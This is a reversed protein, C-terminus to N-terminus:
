EPPAINVPVNVDDISLLRVTDALDGPVVPGTILIRSLLGDERNVSLELTVELGEEAGPVLSALTESSVLGKIRENQRGEFEEVGSLGPDVVAEVIGALTEGFDLFNVPLSEPPIMRWQGSFFDTMYAQDEIIIVNIEVFTQLAEVEAEVMLRLRNPIDVVGTAKKMVLGPLLATGGTRHELTFAASNLSLLNTVALALTAKPDPPPEPTATPIPTPAPACGAAFCLVLAGLLGILLPLRTGMLRRGSSKICSDLCDLLNLLRGGLEM